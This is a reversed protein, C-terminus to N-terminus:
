LLLMMRVINVHFGNTSIIRKCLYKACIRPPPPPWWGWWACVHPRTCLIKNIHRWVTRRYICECSTGWHHKTALGVPKNKWNPSESEGYCRGLFNFQCRPPVTGPGVMCGRHNRWSSANCLIYADITYLTHLAHMIWRRSSTFGIM